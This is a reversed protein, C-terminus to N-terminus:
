EPRGDSKNMIIAFIVQVIPFGVYNIVPSGIVPVVSFFCGIVITIIVMLIFALLKDGKKDFTDMFPICITIIICWIAGTFFKIWRNGEPKVIGNLFHTAKNMISNVSRENQQEIELLISQYEKKYIENNNIKTDDLEMAKELVGIRREMRSFYFFNSDIYPFLMVICFIIIGFGIWLQPKKYNKKFLGLLEDVLKPITDKMIKDEGKM